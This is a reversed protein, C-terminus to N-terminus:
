SEFQEKLQEIREQDQTAYIWCAEWADEYKPCYQNDWIDDFYRWNNIRLAHYGIDDKARVIRYRVQELEEKLM